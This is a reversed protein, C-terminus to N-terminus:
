RNSDPGDRTIVLALHSVGKCPVRDSGTAFTLFKKKDEPSMERVVAWLNKISPSDKTYHQYATAQELDDIDLENSDGCVFLEL